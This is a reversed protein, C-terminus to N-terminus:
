MSAAKIKCENYINGDRSLVHYKSRLNDVLQTIYAQTTLKCPSIRPQREAYKIIMTRLYNREDHDILVYKSFPINLSMHVQNGVGIINKRVPLDDAYIWSVVHGFSRAVFVNVRVMRGLKTIINFVRGLFPSSADIIVVDIYDYTNAKNLLFATFDGTLYVRNDAHQILRYFEPEHRHIESCIKTCYVSEDAFIQLAEQETFWTQYRYTDQEYRCNFIETLQFDDGDVGDYDGGGGGGGGNGINKDFYEM